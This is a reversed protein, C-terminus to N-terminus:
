VRVVLTMAAIMIISIGVTVSFDHTHGASTTSSRLTGSSSPSSAPPTPSEDGTTDDDDNTTPPVVDDDDDFDFFTAGVGSLRNSCDYSTLSFSSSTISKLTCEDCFNDVDILGTGDDIYLACDCTSASFYGGTPCFSFLISDNLTYTDGSISLAVAPTTAWVCSTIDPDSDLITCDVFQASVHPSQVIAYTLTVAMITHLSHQFM